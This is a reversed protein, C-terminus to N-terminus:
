AEAAWVYSLAISNLIMLGDAPVAVDAAPSTLNIKKVGGVGMMPWKLLDLPGDQGIQAPLIGAIPNSSDFLARARAEAAALIEDADGATLELEAVIDVLVPAPGKVLVDDNIPALEDETGTGNIKADVTDILLQTPLGAAGKIVVDVTGQGRPHQDLVKVAVTGPVDLAWAAYAHKTCGNLGQWALFYRQRLAEDDEAAAGESTLWDARNEVGDVGDIVTAIECIQGATANAGQGYDEAEVDAAVEPAGDPLVVDALTVYRYVKGAADPKTKVIRGKPILVNGASGARLFHVQGTAKTAPKRTVGVQKCHLDLWGGTATDPFAQSLVVALFQYLLYLGWAWLEILGRVIGKNLNLRIPLWGKAAYEEQKEALRDFLEQRVQELSKSVLELISM